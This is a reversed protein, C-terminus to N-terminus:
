AQVVEETSGAFGKSSRDDLGFSLTGDPERRLATLAGRPQEGEITTFGSRLAEVMAADLRATEVSALLGTEAHFRGASVADQLPLGGFLHRALALGVNTPIRRAGPCGIAISAGDDCHAVVPSMNTVAYFADNAAIPDAATLLHMGANMIVGTGPVAWRGGFQAQGHTFTLAVLTGNRDCANLHCTHGVSEPISGAPRFNLARDIWADVTTESFDNGRPAAFRYSWLAALARAWALVSEPSDLGVSGALTAGKAVTAFLSASGSTGLPASFISAGDVEMKAAPVVRVAHPSRAWERMTVPSGAAQLLACAARGLPGDHFWQPGQRALEQLTGALAPQRFRFGAEDHTQERVFCDRELQTGAIEQFSHHTTGNADVGTAALEIAPEVLTAWPL